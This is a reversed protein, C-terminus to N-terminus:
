DEDPKMITLVPEGEDGPGCIAKLQVTEHRQKENLFLVEYLIRDSGDRSRKIAVFLM